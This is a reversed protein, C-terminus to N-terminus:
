YDTAWPREIMPFEADSELAALANFSPYDFHQTIIDTKSIM